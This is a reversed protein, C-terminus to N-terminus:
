KQALVKIGRLSRPHPYNKLESKYCEMAKLKDGLSDFIDEYFNPIFVDEIRQAPKAWETESLVEYYYVKKTSLKPKPRVAVLAAESVLKHDKNIDGYFPIFLIDSNIEQVCKSILDNLQKQPITDLKVTPLDLFIIKKIGLNKTACSIEKKRNKIFDESWDPTYACTVICLFVDDGRKTYKKITGGCGLVEDDPHPAIVLIKM